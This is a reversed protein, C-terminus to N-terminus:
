LCDEIKLLRDQLNKIRIDLDIMNKTYWFNKFISVTLFSFYNELFVPSSNNKKM